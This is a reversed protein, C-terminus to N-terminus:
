ARVATAVRRADLGSIRIGARHSKYRMNMFILISTLAEVAASNALPGAHWAQMGASRALEVVTERAGADDGCVLVDCDVPRDFQQLAEFSVNQFASVVKVEGGLLAQGIAVASGGEPLQVRSVRPPVLPVTVDVLIKGSLAPKVQELTALQAHFPVCLV